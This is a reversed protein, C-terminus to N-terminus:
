VHRGELDIDLQVLSEMEGPDMSALIADREVKELRMGTDLWLADMVEADILKGDVTMSHVEWRVARHEINHVRSQLDGTM